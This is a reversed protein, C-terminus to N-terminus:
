ARDAAADDRQVTLGAKLRCQQSATPVHQHRELISQVLHWEYRNRLAFDAVDERAITHRQLGRLREGAVDRCVVKLVHRCEHVGVALTARLALDQAFTSVREVRRLEHHDGVLAHMEQREVRGLGVGELPHGREDGVASAELRDHDLVSGVGDPDHRYVVARRQGVPLDDRRRNTVIRRRRLQIVVVELVGLLEQERASQAATLQLREDFASVVDVAQKRGDFHNRLRHDLDAVDANDDRVGTLRADVEGAILVLVALEDPLMRAAHPVLRQQGTLVREVGVGAFHHHHRGVFKMRFHFL